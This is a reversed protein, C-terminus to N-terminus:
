VLVFKEFAEVIGGDNHGAVVVNAQSKLVTVANGMAVGVGANQVIELDNLGDGCAMLEERRLGLSNLLVQAGTWKNVGRPVIECMTNVAQTTQAFPHCSLAKMWYPMVFNSIRISDTMFIMKRVTGAALLADISPFLQGLPEHYREHLEHNESSDILVGNIDGLFAVLPVGEAASFSFASRVVDDSLAHEALAQGSPGLVLLGHMYIGPGNAWSLEGEGGLDHLAAVKMVAPRAKGTAAVVRVGRRIAEKIVRVSGKPIRSHKDLLTGDLDLAVLKIKDKSTPLRNPSTAIQISPQAKSKCGVSGRKGATLRQNVLM